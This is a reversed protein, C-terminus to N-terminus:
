GVIMYSLFGYLKPGLRSTGMDVGAVIFIGAVSMGPSPMPVSTECAVSSTSAATPSGKAHSVCLAPMAPTSAHPSGSGGSVISLM